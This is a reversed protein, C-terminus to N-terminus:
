RAFTSNSTHAFTVLTFCIIQGGLLDMKSPAFTHYQGAKRQKYIDHMRSIQNIHLYPWLQAFM